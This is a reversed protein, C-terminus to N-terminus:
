PQTQLPQSQSVQLRERNVRLRWRGGDATLLRAVLWNVGLERNKFFSPPPHAVMCDTMNPCCGVVTQVTVSPPQAPTLFILFSPIAFSHGREGGCAHGAVVLRGPDFATRSCSAEAVRFAVWSDKRQSLCQPDSCTYM